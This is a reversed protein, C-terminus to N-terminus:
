AIGAKMKLYEDFFANLDAIHEAHEEQVSDQEDEWASLSDALLAVARLFWKDQETM